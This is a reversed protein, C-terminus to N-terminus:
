GELAKIWSQFACRGIKAVESEVFRHFDSLRPLLDRTEGGSLWDLAMKRLDEATKPSRQALADFWSGYGQTKRYKNASKRAVALLLNSQTQSPKTKTKRQTPM